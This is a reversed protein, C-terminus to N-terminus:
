PSSPPTQANKAADKLDLKNVDLDADALAKAVAWPIENVEDAGSFVPADGDYVCAAVVKKLGAKTEKEETLALMESTKLQRIRVTGVDPIEREVYRVQKLKEAITM